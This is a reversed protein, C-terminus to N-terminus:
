PKVAIIELWNHPLSTLGVDHLAQEVTSELASCAEFSDEETAHLAGMAFEKYSSIARLASPGLQARRERAECIRYGASTVLEQYDASSLWLRAQAVALKIRNPLSRNMEAVARRMWRGYFSRSDPPYAGQYFATNIGLVGGRHLVRWTEALASAKGEEPLLHICNAFIALDFAQRFPLNDASAGVYGKMPPLAHERRTRVLTPLHVDLLVSDIEVQTAQARSYALRTMLGGAAAIDLLQYRDRPPLNEFLRGVFRENVNQYAEESAFLDFSQAGRRADPNM